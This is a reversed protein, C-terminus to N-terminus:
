EPQVPYAIKPTQLLAAEYGKGLALSAKALDGAGTASGLAAKGNWDALDAPLKADMSACAPAPAQTPQQAFAPASVAIAAALLILRMPGAGFTTIAAWICRSPTRRFRALQLLPHDSSGPRLGERFWM